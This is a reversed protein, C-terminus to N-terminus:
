EDEADDTEEDDPDNDAPEAAPPPDPAPPEDFEPLPELDEIHRVENPKMWGTQPNLALTHAEYRTKTDNRLLADLNAKTTTGRPFALSLTQEWRALHDGLTFKLLQIGDQELNSYQRSSQLGGLFGVPLGFVLELDTLTYRRSEDMQSDRPNWALPQFDTTANLVAITRDRQNRLWAEKAARLDPEKAEPSTVKLLGTPVGHQSISRAQRMQERALDLVGDLHAELVGLGRLAGPECPGKIHIVDHSGFTFGGVAYEISGVPLPYRTQDVRRVGVMRAPVPLIATPWGEVNRAAIIATANGEWLYDLAMSGFTTVRPDPPSPQELLPPRPSLKEIPMGARERYADWPLSSLLGALLNAARWAGPIKMGGRYTSPGGGDGFVPQGDVFAFETITRNEGPVAPKGVLLRTLRSRLSTAM